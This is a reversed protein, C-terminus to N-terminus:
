SKKNIALSTLEDDINQALEYAREYLGAKLCNKLERAEGILGNFNINPYREMASLLVLTFCLMAIIIIWGIM